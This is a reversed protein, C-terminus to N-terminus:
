EMDFPPMDRSQPIADGEFELEDPVPEPASGTMDQKFQMEQWQEKSILVQRPKSGEFPGVVGKEEMQDVLRAARSYGLKLRRQLMSVSAMGTEVVVEIAAPLLEDYDDGVDDPESGGVGKSGKEKEAAHKEIDHMIEQDYEAGGSNQKIFGVVAAVEEDSILCGQVRQPKGSGLPFYLMDGRGVLKEAGTTDLIIRSELSSAVAFAIRSPINAKMLGTIVDASPRQTAIILHMGAARGMQAVRCISEEVEKAAVLMLDALEDIVVVIQPMKEMDDTKAAHANYSALDRVGIESFARYRKMMEVVAWQLAGAAKKPDTVVPILLHPIGNYIGLEVMKPDVMILRVEEPTAKYLLSIILSNTCVSKGSGTTGAILLHPLKAINGVINNGGIDKGVAFSVKSPNDRFERSDIVDHIYVPSVLRNPVEIGVMSIQNPIPAIRVGTAGLALAIDDALNTLKNLRVGQDLELEYRTVSPGRTVNSISADIGFSRITDSLRAQNARLEGAVDSSSVGEGETLLSVPPYQYAMPEEELSRAIDQAVEAAAQATEEKQRAKASTPPVAPERVIEPVPQPAPQPVPQPEPIPESEPQVVPQPQVAEQRIEAPAAFPLAEEEPAETQAQTTGTLVQDPTPVSPKRNFFREKKEIPKPERKKGVLPGDDVPIDIQPQQRRGERVPEPEREAKKRRPRPEPIEEEEYEPRSRLRDVVDTPSIHFCVMVLIVALLVFIIGAGIKSFVATLGLAIVGSIVGGSALAEGQKWLLEPLKMDWAYAAQALLLHFFGGALVPLLLACWVRLRVPRGRHFALIGSAVLLMPPLLLYGYGILGKVLGCFFDIFIAQIHFYGLAAFIALLLCVVAGVERRVPRSAAKKRSATTRSSTSRNATTRKGGTSKKKATAM